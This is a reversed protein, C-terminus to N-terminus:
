GEGLGFLASLAAAHPNEASRLTALYKGTTDLSTHGLRHQIESVTAGSAEMAHAFTHRLTHFNVQLHKRCIAALAQASLAEGRTGNSALSVWVPAESALKRPTHGHLAELYTLLADGVPSALTDRMVKAGKCRPWVITVRGGRVQVDGWRLAAIEARRRGTALALALLAFDRKGTLRRRDIAALAERLAGYDLAEATAYSDSPRREVRRIPNGALQGHREGFDYFSSLVALRHNYTSAAVDGRAAWSGAVLAVEGVPSDLDLGRWVLAQRFSSLTRQYVARTRESRTRRAKAALWSAVLQDLDTKATKQETEGAGIVTIAPAHQPQAM